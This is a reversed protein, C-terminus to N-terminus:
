ISLKSTFAYIKERGSILGKGQISINLNNLYTFIDSLYAMSLIFNKSEFHVVLSCGRQRLFMEIEKRLKFVRTLVRGRSLRKVKTHYLLVNHKAGIEKCFAKFLRHNLANGRIYNVVSVAYSLVNKLKEPLLKAALAHRHLMCHTVTIHLIEKKCFSWLRIQELCLPSDM